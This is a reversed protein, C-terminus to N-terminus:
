KDINKNIVSSLSAVRAQLADCVSSLQAELSTLQSFSVCALNGTRMASLCSVLALVTVAHLSHLPAIRYQVCMLVHAFRSTMTLRQLM